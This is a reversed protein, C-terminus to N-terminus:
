TAFFKDYIFKEFGHAIFMGIAYCFNVGDLSSTYHFHNNPYKRLFGAIGFAVGLYVFRVSVQFVYFLFTLICSYTQQHRKAETDVILNIM